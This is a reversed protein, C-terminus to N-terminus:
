VINGILSARVVEVLKALPDVANNAIRLIASFSSIAAAKSPNTVVEVLSRTSDTASNVFDCELPGDVRLLWVETM